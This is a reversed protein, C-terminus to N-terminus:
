RKKGVQPASRRGSGAQDGSGKRASELIESTQDRWMAARTSSSPAIAAVTLGAADAKNRGRAIAQMTGVMTNRDIVARVNGNAKQDILAKSCKGCPLAEGRTMTNRVRFVLRPSLSVRSRCSEAEKDRGTPAASAGFLRVM